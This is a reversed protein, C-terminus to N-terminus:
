IDLHRVLHKEIIDGLSLDNNWNTDGLLKTAERLIRIADEREVVWGLSDVDSYGLEKLCLRLMSVYAARTGLAYINEENENM